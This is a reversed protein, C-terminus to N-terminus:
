GVADGGANAARRRHILGWIMGMALLVLTPRWEINRIGEFERLDLPNVYTWYALSVAWSLYIWPIVGLWLGPSETGAPPLFPLFVLLILLYWPHVTTSFLLYAMGPVAMLRLLAQPKQLRRAYFWLAMMTLAMSAGMIRKAWGNAQVPSLGDPWGALGTELWHFLGSNYNWRDAFIRLAGFLGQGDLPGTLGWGARLGAPILIAAMVAGYLCLQWWRWRWFLLVLLLAPVGKTLTAWALLIPGLWPSIRPLRETFTLWLALMTLFIMWADVHAGHAVEVIVLPNWLYIFLRHDPLRAMRLLHVLFFGTLLDFAVMALQFFFPDLPFLRTLTAFLAQAAPLYPSAMWDHDVQARQPIDLYDLAPASVPYAYPSVGQNAVYGDWIYRYVDGSLTPSTLLLLLRFLIAGGFILGLSLGGAREQWLLLGLYGIFALAYWGLTVPLNGFTLSGTQWHRYVLGGYAALSLSMLSLLLWYQRLLQLRNSGVTGWRPRTSNVLRYKVWIQGGWLDVIAGKKLCCRGRKHSVGFVDIM